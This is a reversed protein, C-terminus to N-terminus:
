NIQNHAMQGHWAATRRIADSLGIRVQLGLEERARSTSPVYRFPPRAANPRQCVNVEVSPAVMAAVAHALDSISVAEDSGTNYIRCAAGRLLISWLWIALDAAYLYSRYPTGDGKIVVPGGALADRLFNGIAYNANLPLYPGVFTFLRAVKTEIGYAQTYVACLFESIRKAQGYGSCADTPTPGGLYEESIHTIEFPQSGYAAGSSTFLFKLAGCQRAFDLVRRTGQVDRDFATLREAVSECDHAATAAHIIYAFPGVPFAFRDMSGQWLTLNGYDVLHPARQYFAAPDRSLVVVQADLHYRLNAWLFSELMWRGVFGTGGTMFLRQGRLEDWLGQTHALVHDLDNALPNTM